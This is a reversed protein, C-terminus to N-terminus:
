IHKHALKHPLLFRILAVAFVRLDYWADFTGKLSFETELLISM